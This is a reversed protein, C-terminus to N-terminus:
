DKKVSDNNAGKIKIYDEDFSFDREGEVQGGLAEIALALENYSVYDEVKKIYEKMEDVCSEDDYQTLYAAFEPVRDGKKLGNLLIRKIKDYKKSSHALVECLADSVGEEGVKELIIPAYVDANDVMDEVIENKVHKCVKKSFFLDIYENVAYKVNKMRIIEIAALLVQEDSEETLLDLIKKDEVGKAVGEFLRDSIPVGSEVYTLFTALIDEDGDFYTAPTKGGLEDFTTKEFEAYYSPLKELWEDESFKGKNELMIRKFYKEFLKDIDVIKRM